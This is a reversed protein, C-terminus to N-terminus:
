ILSPSRCKEKNPPVRSEYPRILVVWAEGTWPHYFFPCPLSDRCFCRSEITSSEVRKYFTDQKHLGFFHLVLNDDYLPTQTILLPRWTPHCTLEYANGRFHYHPGVLRINRGNQTRPCTLFQSLSGRKQKPLSLLELYFPRPRLIQRGVSVNPSRQIFFSTTLFRCILNEQLRFKKNRYDTITSHTERFNKITKLRPQLREEQCDRTWVFDLWSELHFGSVMSYESPEDGQILHFLGGGVM